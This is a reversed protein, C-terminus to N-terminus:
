TMCKHQMTQQTNITEKGEERRYNGLSVTSGHDVVGRVVLRKCCLLLALLVGKLMGVDGIGKERISANSNQQQILM